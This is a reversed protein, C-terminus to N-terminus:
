ASKRAMLGSVLAEVPALRDAEAQARDADCAIAGCLNILRRATKELEPRPLTALVDSSLESRIKDIMSAWKNAAM